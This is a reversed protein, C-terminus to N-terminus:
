YLIYGLFERLSEKVAPKLEWRAVNHRISEKDLIELLHLDALTCRGFMGGVKLLKIAEKTEIYQNKLLYEMLIRRLDPITSWLVKSTLTLPNVITSNFSDTIRYLTRVQSALRKPMEVIPPQKVQYNQFTDRVVPTRLQATLMILDVLKEPVKTKELSGLDYDEMFHNVAYKIRRRVVNLRQSDLNLIRSVESRRRGIGVGRINYFLFREGFLSMLAREALHQIDNTALFLASFRAKYFRQGMGTAKSSTGDYIDRLESIIKNKYALPLSVITTADKVVLCKKNLTPLLSYDKTDKKHEKYGSMLANQSLSSVMIVESCESYGMVTETRGSGSPGVIILWLQDTNLRCCLITATVTAILNDDLVNLEKNYVTLLEDFTM